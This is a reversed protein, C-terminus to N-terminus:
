DIPKGAEEYAQRVAQENSLQLGIAAATAQLERARKGLAEADRFAPTAAGAGAADALGKQYMREAREPKLEACVITV